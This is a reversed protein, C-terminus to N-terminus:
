FLLTMLEKYIEREEASFWEGGFGLFDGEKGAKAVGKAINLVWTKYGEITDSTERSGLDTLVTPVMAYLHKLLGSQDEIGIDTLCDLIEDQTRSTVNLLQNEEGSAQVISRILPNEPFDKVGSALGRVMAMRENASGTVGSRGAGEMAMAVMYPLRYIRTWAASEYNSELSM